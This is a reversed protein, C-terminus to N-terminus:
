TVGRVKSIRICVVGLAGVAVVGIVISAAVVGSILESVEGPSKMPFVSFIPDHTISYGDWNRYCSSYQYSQYNWIGADVAMEDTASATDYCWICFYSPLIATGVDYTGSDKGWVYTGGFDITTRVNEAEYFQMIGDDSTETEPIDTPISDGENIEGTITYSSFWSQYNFALSLGEVEELIEGTEPNTFDGIHQDIKLVAADDTVGFRYVMELKSVDVPTFEPEPIETFDSPTDLEMNFYMAPSYSWLEGEINVVEASWEILGDSNIYPTTIEGVSGYTPYFEYVYESATLNMEYYVWDVEDDEDWDYGVEDYVVDMIGNGNTDNYISMGSFYHDMWLTQNGELYMENVDYGYGAFEWDYEYYYSENMYSVWSYTENLNPIVDNANVVTMNEDFWTYESHYYGSENFESFYFTSYIFVEDGTLAEPEPWWFINWVYEEADEGYDSSDNTISALWAMYSADPDLLIVVLLNNFSWDSVYHYDYEEEIYYVNGYIDVVSYYWNYPETYAGTENTPDPEIPDEPDTPDTPETPEGSEDSEWNETENSDFYGSEDWWEWAVYVGPLMESFPETIQALTFENAYVSNTGTLTGFLVVSVFLSVVITQLNRLKMEESWKM